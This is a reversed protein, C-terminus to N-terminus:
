RANPATTNARTTTPDRQGFRAGLALQHPVPHNPNPLFDRPPLCGVCRINFQPQKRAHPSTNRDLSLYSHQAHHIKPQSPIPNQTPLTKLNCSPFTLITLLAHPSEFLDLLSTYGVACVRLFSVDMRAQMKESCSHKFQSSQALILHYCQWTNKRLVSFATM